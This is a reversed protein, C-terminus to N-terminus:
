VPFQFERGYRDILRDKISRVQAVLRDKISRVQVLGEAVGNDQVIREIRWNSFHCPGSLQWQYVFSARKFGEEFPEM